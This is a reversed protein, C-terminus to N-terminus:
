KSEHLVLNAVIEEIFTDNATMRIRPPYKRETLVDNDNRISFFPVTTVIVDLPKFNNIVSSRQKRRIWYQTKKVVLVDKVGNM